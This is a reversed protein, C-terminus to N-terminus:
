LTARAVIRNAAVRRNPAPAAVAVSHCGMPGVGLSRGHTSGGPQVRIHPTRGMAAPRTHENTDTLAIHGTQQPESTKREVASSRPPLFCDPIRDRRTPIVAATATDVATKILAQPPPSGAAEPGVEVVVDLVVDGDDVVLLVVEVVVVVVVVFAGGGSDL